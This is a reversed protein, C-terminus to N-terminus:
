AIAELLREDAFFDRPLVVGNTALKPFFRPKIGTYTLPGLLRGMADYDQETPEVAVYIDQLTVVESEMGVVETVHSIRRSGDVCRVVQVILDFASAIQERIARLPRDVGGTLV